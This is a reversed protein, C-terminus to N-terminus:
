RGHQRYRMIDNGHYPCFEGMKVGTKWICYDLSLQDRKSHKCVEEWWLCNFEKVKETHKRLIMTGAHLGFDAPFGAAKYEIMQNQMVEITDLGLQICTDAERYACNRGWHKFTAIEVDKGDMYRQILETTPKLLTIHGDIWLSYDCDVYEHILIKHRKANRVNQDWRGNFDTCAPLIKWNPSYWHLQDTFCCYEVEVDGGDKPLDETLIDYSGCIATVYAIKM